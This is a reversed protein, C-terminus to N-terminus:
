RNTDSGNPLRDPAPGKGSASLISEGCKEVLITLGKGPESVMRFEAAMDEARQKMNQLGYHGTGNTTDPLGKGNDAIQLLLSQDFGVSVVLQSAEAHRLVNQTAEQLIRLLNLVENPSLTGEKRIDREVRWAILDLLYQQLYAEVKDAFEQISLADQHIAWITDRLLRVTEETFGRTQDIRELTEDAPVQELQLSLLDLDTIIRTLHAGVHDHLDRSIREREGQIRQQLQLQRIKRQYLRRNYAYMGGGVALLVLLGMLLQFWMTQYFPPIVRIPIRLEEPNWIGSSNAAKIRLLYSGPPLGTYTIQRNSARRNVWTDDFGDLKFAFRNKEPSRVDLGSYTITLAQDDPFLQIEPDPGLIKGVLDPRPTYNIDIGTITLTPLFHDERMSDPHFVTFGEPNGFMMSGSSTQLHASMSFDNFNLGDEKTYTRVQGSVPDMRCIGKDTSMWLLGQGDGYVAWVNNNPLGDQERYNTFHETEPHFCFLGGGFTSFWLATDTPWVHTLMANTLQGLQTGLPVMTVEKRAPSVRYIGKPDGVWLEDEYWGMQVVHILPLWDPRFVRKEKLDYCFLGSGTGCWLYHGNSELALGRLQMVGEPMPWERIERGKDAFHFLRGLATGVWLNGEPDALLADINDSSFGPTTEKTFTHVQEVPWESVPASGLSPERSFDIRSLGSSTGIWLTQEDQMSIVEVHSDPLNFPGGENSNIRVMRDDERDMVNVGQGTGLWIQGQRDELISLVLNHSLSEGHRPDHLYRAVIDGDRLVLAGKNTGVWIDGNSAPMIDVVMADELIKRLSGDSHLAYLGQRTGILQQDPLCSLDMIVGPTEVLLEPQGERVVFLSDLWGAFIAHSGTDAEVVIIEREEGTNLSFSRIEGQEWNVVEFVQYFTAAWLHGLHDRTLCPRFWNQDPQDTTDPFFAEFRGTRPDLRNLGNRTAVWLFGSGDELIGEVQNNSLSHPNGVEHQYIKFDYGDFRALGNQTGIWIYGLRDQIISQGTNEPLGDDATMHLFRGQQSYACSHIALFVCLMRLRVKMVM